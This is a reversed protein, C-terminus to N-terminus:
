LHHTRSDVARSATCCAAVQLQQMSNVKERESGVASCLVAQAMMLGCGIPPLAVLANAAQVMRKKFEALPFESGADSQSLLDLM